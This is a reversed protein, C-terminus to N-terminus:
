RLADLGGRKGTSFASTKTLCFTAAYCNPGITPMKATYSNRVPTHKQCGAKDRHATAAAPMAASLKTM